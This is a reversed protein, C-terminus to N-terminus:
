SLHAELINKYYIYIHIYKDTNKVCLPNMVYTNIYANAMVYVYPLEKNIKKLVNM